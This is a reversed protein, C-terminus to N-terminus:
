GNFRESAARQLCRADSEIDHLQAIKGETALSANEVIGPDEDRQQLHDASPVERGFHAEAPLTETL